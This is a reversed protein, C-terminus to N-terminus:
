RLGWRRRLTWDACLAIVLSVMVWPRHWADHERLVPQAPRRTAISSSLAGVEEERVLHGGTARAVRSLTADDRRPDAFEPDVPVGATWTESRGLEAGGRAVVAEIRLVGRPLGGITAGYTGAAGDRLTAEHETTSEDPLSVRLRVRADRVPTFTADHVRATVDLTAADLPVASLTVPDPAAAAAWRLAQRWFTEYRRDTSPLMMRWRWSAEGTFALVRGAGHRQVAVLPRVTGGDTRSWALVAAGARPAGLRALSPLAPLGEWSEPMPGPGIRMIAHQIGDASLLWPSNQVQMAGPDSRAEGGSLALPLVPELPSGTLARADLSEAGVLLLGGGRQSVFTRLADAANRGLWEPRYSALVVADYGDLAARDRPFGAVLAAARAGDAQVYYTDRSQDDRGKRVVADVILGPDHDWARKLFSHEFGPAGELMLVRRPRGPPPAVVTAGNNAATLEGEAVPVEVRLLTARDRRSAIRFVVSVPRGDAAPRAVQVDAPRGDEFLTVDFPAPGSGHSVVMATLDVVSDCVALDGLSLARVERDRMPGTGGVGITFVPAFATRTAASTSVGGDSVVVVGAASRGGLRAPLQALAGSLDSRPAAAQVAGLDTAVLDAGFSFTAVSAHQSLAPLLRTRVLTVAHELRSQGSADRVQMSRSADILVPVVVDHALPTSEVRVPRMSLALIALLILSRLAVLAARRAPAVEQARFWTYAALATVM